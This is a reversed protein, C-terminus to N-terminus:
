IYKYVHIYVRGNGDLKEALSTKQLKSELQILNSKPAALVKPSDDGYNLSRLSELSVSTDAWYVMVLYTSLSPYNITSM